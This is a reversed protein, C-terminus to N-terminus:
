PALVLRLAVREAGAPDALAEGPTHACLFRQLADVLDARAQERTRARTILGPVEVLRAQFWDHDVPEIVASLSLEAM